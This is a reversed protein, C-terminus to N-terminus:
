KLSKTGAPVVHLAITDVSEMSAIVFAGDYAVRGTKLAIPCSTTGPAASQLPSGSSFSIKTVWYPAFPLLLTHDPVVGFPM